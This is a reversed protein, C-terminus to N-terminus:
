MEMYETEYSKSNVAHWYCVWRELKQFFIMCNLDPNLNEIQKSDVPLLCDSSRKKNFHCYHPDLATRQPVWFVADSALPILAVQETTCSPFNGGKAACVINCTSLNNMRYSRQPRVWLWFELRKIEVKYEMKYKVTKNVGFPLYLARKKWLCLPRTKNRSNLVFFVNTHLKWIDSHLMKQWNAEDRQCVPM